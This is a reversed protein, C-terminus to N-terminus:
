ACPAQWAAAVRGYFDAEDFATWDLSLAACRGRLRDKNVRINAEVVALAHAVDSLIVDAGLSSMLFGLIGTGTGLELVRKGEWHGGPFQTALHHGLALAAPWVQWALRLKFDM